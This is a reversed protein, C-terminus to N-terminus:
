TSGGRSSGRIFNSSSMGSSARVITTTGVRNVEGSSTVRCTSFSFTRASAFGSGPSCNASRDSKVSASSSDIGPSSSIRSVALRRISSSFSAWEERYPSLNKRRCRLRFHFGASFLHIPQSRFRPFSSTIFLHSQLGDSDAGNAYTHPSKASDMRVRGTRNTSVRSASVRVGGSLAMSRTRTADWGKFRGRYLSFCFRTVLPYLM